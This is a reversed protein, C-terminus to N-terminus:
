EKELYNHESRWQWMYTKEVETFPEVLNKSDSNNKIGKWEKESPRDLVLELIIHIKWLIRSNTSPYGEM